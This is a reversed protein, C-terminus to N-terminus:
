LIKEKKKEFEHRNLLSYKVKDWTIDLMKAITLKNYGLDSLKIIKTAIELNKNVYTTMRSQRHEVTWKSGIRKEASKLCNAVRNEIAKSTWIKNKQYQRIRENASADREIAGGDGSEPKLNAWEESEVVNWLESYYLGKNKLEEKSDTEFLIETDVDYGHKDCHRRWYTGSGEYKYPDHITKGLYKLGTVKHTKKYLYITM